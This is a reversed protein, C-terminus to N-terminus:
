RRDGGVEGVGTSAQRVWRSLWGRGVKERERAFTESAFHLNQDPSQDPQKSGSQKMATAEVGRSVPVQSRSLHGGVGVVGSERHVGNQLSAVM